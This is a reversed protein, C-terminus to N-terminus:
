IYIINCGLQNYYEILIDEIEERFTEDDHVRLKDEFCYNNNKILKFYITTYTHIYYKSLELKKSALKDFGRRKTYAISDVCTRDTILIDSKSLIAIEKQIQNTFIWLQSEETAKKNIPLPSHKANETLIDINKNPLNIKCEYAKKLVSTTKGTGHTGTFSIKEKM